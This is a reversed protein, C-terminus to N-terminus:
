KNKLKLFDLYKSSRFHSLLYLVKTSLRIGQTWDRTGVHNFALVLGWLIAKVQGSDVWGWVCAFVHVM